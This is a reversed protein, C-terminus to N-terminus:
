KKSKVLFYEEKPLLTLLTLIKNGDNSQSKHAKIAAVKQKWVTSVDVVKHAEKKALGDPMFVFYSPIFKREIDRMCFYMIHKLYNLRSFLFNIVSTVVVHDIHGSLGNPNFTIITEPKLQDLLRKLKESVQHYNSNCLSGDVFNLFFVEKIGLIKASAMLEKERINKLRKDQHDGDTACILYVTNTLSLTAITGAPGMAEDDPHAFIGVITSM